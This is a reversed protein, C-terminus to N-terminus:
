KNIGKSIIEKMKARREAPTMRLYMKTKDEVPEPEPAEDGAVVRASRVAEPILIEALGTIVKDVVLDAIEEVAFDKANEIPAVPGADDSTASAETSASSESLASVVRDVLSDAFENLFSSLGDLKEGFGDIRQEIGRVAMVVDFEEEEEKETVDETEPEGSESAMDENGELSEDEVKDLEDALDNEVNDDVDNAVGDHDKENMSAIEELVDSNKFVVARHDFAKSSGSSVDSITASYNAPHDVYSIEVMDYAHIILPLFWPDASEEVASENIEYERPIIGVSYAKLVGGEILKKTQEDVPVTVVENWELGDAKGIKDVRGSPYDHMTRINGWRRWKEIAQETAERTIIDGVEDMEDSTFFGRVYLNGDDDEAGDISKARDFSGYSKYRVLSGVIDKTRRDMLKKNMKDEGALWKNEDVWDQADDMTWEDVDFLYTIIESCDICYLAKIGQSDSVTITKIDHSSHGSSVPIRHYNETTEPM